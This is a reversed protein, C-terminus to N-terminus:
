HRTIWSLLTGGVGIEIDDSHAGLCLVSLREGPRVLNLTKM